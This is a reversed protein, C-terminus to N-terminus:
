RASLVKGFMKSAGKPQEAMIDPDLCSLRSVMQYRVPSKEIIKATTATFFKICTRQFHLRLLESVKVKKLSVKAGFEIDVGLSSLCNEEKTFDVTLLKTRSKARETVSRKVFRQTLGRISDFLEGAMFPMVPKDTQFRTLFPKLQNAVSLLFKLKAEYLKDSCAAKVKVFSTTGPATKSTFSSVLTKVQPLLEM